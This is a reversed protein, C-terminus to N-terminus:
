LMRHKYIVADNNILEGRPTTCQVSVTIEKLNSSLDRVTWSINYTQQFGRINQAEEPFGKSDQDADDTGTDARLYTTGSSTDIVWEDEFDLSQLTEATQTTLRIATNRLENNLNASISNAMVALLGLLSIMLLVLAVMLEVLSFGKNNKVTLVM